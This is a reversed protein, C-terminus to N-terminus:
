WRAANRTGVYIGSKGCYTGVELGPGHPLRELAIRFLLEGEDDPMFGKANRAHERLDSPMSDSSITDPM